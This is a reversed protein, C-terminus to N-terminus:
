MLRAIIRVYEDGSEIKCPNRPSEWFWLESGDAVFAAYDAKLESSLDNNMRALVTLLALTRSTGASSQKSVHTAVQSASAHPYIDTQYVGSSNYYAEM